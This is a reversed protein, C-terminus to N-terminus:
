RAVEQLSVSLTVGWVVSVVDSLTADLPVQLLLGPQVVDFNALVTGGVHHIGRDTFRGSDGVPARGTVGTGLILRNGEYWAQASYRAVLHNSDAQTDVLGLAGGRLRLSLKRSLGLRYNLLLQGSLVDKAFAENRDFATLQGLGRAVSQSSALPLRVGAEVLFPVTAPALALGVYPNGIATQRITAPGSPLNLGLPASTAAGGGPAAGAPAQITSNYHAVPVDVALATQASLLFTGSVFMASTFVSRDEPAATDLSPKLFEVAVQNPTYPRTWLSQGQAPFASLSILVILTLSLYYRRM